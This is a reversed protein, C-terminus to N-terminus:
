RQAPHPKAVDRFREMCVKDMYREIDSVKGTFCCKTCYYEDMAPDYNLEYDIDRAFCSPCRYMPTKSRSM